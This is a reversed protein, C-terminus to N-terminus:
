VCLIFGGRGDFIRMMVTGTGGYFLVCVCVCKYIDCVIIIDQRPFLGCVIIIAMEPIVCLAACM